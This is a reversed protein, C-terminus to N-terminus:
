IVYAGEAADIEVYERSADRIAVFYASTVFAIQPSPIWLLQNEAELELKNLDFYPQNYAKELAGVKGGQVYEFGMTEFALQARVTVDHLMGPPLFFM